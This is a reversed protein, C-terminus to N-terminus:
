KSQMTAKAWGMHDPWSMREGTRVFLTGTKDTTYQAEIGGKEKAHILVNARYPKSSEFKGRTLGEILVHKM